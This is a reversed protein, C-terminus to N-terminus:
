CTQALSNSFTQGYLAIWFVYFASSLGTKTDRSVAPFLGEIPWRLGPLFWLVSGLIFLTAPVILSRTLQPMIDVKQCSLYQVLSNTALSIIYAFFPLVLFFGGVDQIFQIPFPIFHGDWLLIFLSLTIAFVMAIVVRVSDNLNSKAMESSRM